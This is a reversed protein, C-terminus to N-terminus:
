YYETKFMILAFFSYFVFNILCSILANTLIADESTWGYTTELTNQLTQSLGLLAVIILVVSSIVATLLWGSFCQVKSEGFHGALIAAVLPAILYGLGLVLYDTNENLIPTIIVWNFNYFPFSLISGFLYYLIMLPAAEITSFLDDFEVLPSLSYYLITFLFNLGVFAVLSLLFAKGFGM